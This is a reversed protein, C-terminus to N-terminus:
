KICHVASFCARQYLSQRRNRLARLLDLLPGKHVRLGSSLWQLPFREELRGSDCQVSLQSGNTRRSGDALDANM